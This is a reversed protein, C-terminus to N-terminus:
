TNAVCLEREDCYELLTRGEANRTGIGNGGHVGAFGETEEGVNGNLDVLGFIVESPNQAKYEGALDDCFRHKEELPRGAQPGYGSIVRLRIM